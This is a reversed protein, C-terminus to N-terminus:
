GLANRSGLTDWSIELVSDVSVHRRLITLLENARAHYERCPHRAVVRRKHLSHPAPRILCFSPMVHMLTEAGESFVEMQLELREHRLLWDHGASQRRFKRAGPDVHERLGSLAKKDTAGPFGAYVVALM